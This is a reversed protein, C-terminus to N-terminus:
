NKGGHMELAPFSGNCGSLDQEPDTSSPFDSGVAELTGSLSTGDELHLRITWTMTGGGTYSDSFEIGNELEELETPVLGDGWQFQLPCDPTGDANEDKKWNVFSGTVASLLTGDIELTGGSTPGDEDKLSFQYIGAPPIGSGAPFSAELTTPDSSIEDVKSAGAVLSGSNVTIRLSGETFDGCSLVQTIKKLYPEWAGLTLSGRAIENGAPDVLLLDFSAGEAGALAYFNTRFSGSINSLGVVETSTGAPTAAATPVGEFGQGFSQAGDVAYIRSNVIVEGSAEVRFAGAGRSLGFDNLLTDALVRTEGGALTFPITIAPESNDQGRVLWSLSIEVPTEGTNMIYLDTIWSGARAAAPVMIDTGPTLASAPLVSALIILSSLMTRKM